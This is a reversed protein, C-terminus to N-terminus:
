FESGTAHNEVTCDLAYEAPGSGYESSSSGFTDYVYARTVIDQGSPCYRPGAQGGPWYKPDKLFHTFTAPDASAVEDTGGNLGDTIPYFGWDWKYAELHTRIASQSGLCTHQRAIARTVLLRPLALLAIIGIILVVLMIELLTFGKQNRIKMM